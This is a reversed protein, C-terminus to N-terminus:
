TGSLPFNVVDMKVVPIYQVHILEPYSRGIKIAGKGMMIM